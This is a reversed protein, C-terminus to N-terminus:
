YSSSYPEQLLLYLGAQQMRAPTESKVDAKLCVVFRVLVQQPKLMSPTHLTPSTSECGINKSLIHIKVGDSLGFYGFLFHVTPRWQHQCEDATSLIQLESTSTGSKDSHSNYREGPIGAQNSTFTERGGM